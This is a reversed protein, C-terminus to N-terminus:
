FVAAPQNDCSATSGTLVWPEEEPFSLDDAHGLPFVSLYQYKAADYKEMALQANQMILNFNDLLGSFHENDASLKMVDGTQLYERVSSEHAATAALIAEKYQNFMDFHDLMEQKAMAHSKVIDVPNSAIAPAIPIQTM